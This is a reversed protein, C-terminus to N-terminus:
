CAPLLYFLIVRATTSGEAVFPCPLQSLFSNIENKIKFNLISFTTSYLPYLACAKIHLLTSLGVVLADEFAEGLCCVRVGIEQSDPTQPV